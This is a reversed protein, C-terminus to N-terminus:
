VRKKTRDLKLMLRKLKRFVGRKPVVNDEKLFPNISNKPKRGIKNHYKSKTVENDAGPRLTIAM